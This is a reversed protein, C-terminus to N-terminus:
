HNPANRFDAACWVQHEMFMRARALSTVESYLRHSVLADVLSLVHHTSSLRGLGLETLLESVAKM